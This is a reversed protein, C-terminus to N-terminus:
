VMVVQEVRDEMIDTVVEAEVGPVEQVELDTVVLLVTLVVLDVQVVKYEVVV